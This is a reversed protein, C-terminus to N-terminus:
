HGVRVNKSVPFYNIIDGVGQGRGVAAPPNFVRIIRFTINHIAKAPRCTAAKASLEAFPSKNFPPLSADCLLLASMSMTLSANAVIPAWSAM